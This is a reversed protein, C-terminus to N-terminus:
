TQMVEQHMVYPLTGVLSLETESYFHQITLNIHVASGAFLLFFFFFTKGALMM